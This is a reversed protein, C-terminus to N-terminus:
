IQVLRDNVLITKLNMVPSINRRIIISRVGHGLPMSMTLHHNDVGWVSVM